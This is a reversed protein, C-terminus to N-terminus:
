EFCVSWDIKMISVTVGDKASKGLVRCQDLSQMGEKKALLFAARECVNDVGTTKTVFESPTFDGEAGSLEGASYFYLPIKNIRSFELLGEEDKKLDITGFALISRLDINKKALEEEVRSQILKAPTKRKCGIGAVFARPILQLVNEKPQQRYPSVNVWFQAEKPAASLEPPLQGYVQGECTFCVPQESVIKSACLKAQKMSSIILRNKVAFVDIALKGSVDSATTIVPVAGLLGALRSTLENAGGLHGSLVSIVFKGKEDLVVVAPDTLKSKLYPAMGRVIIGMAGIFVLADMQRFHEKMWEGLPIPRYFIKTEWESFSDTNKLCNEIKEGLQRGKPTFCVISLKKKNM